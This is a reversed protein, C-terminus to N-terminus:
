ELKERLLKIGENIVKSSTEGDYIEIECDDKFNVAVTSSVTVIKSIKVGVFKLLEMPFPKDIVVIDDGLLKHYDKSERPHTKIVLNPYKDLFQKYISMEEELSFRDDESFPQTILVVSGDDIQSIIDRINFIDLITNKEEDSKQNWLEEPNIVEAKSSIIDPCGEKTLYVKRINEHTGFGERFFKFYFGLFNAFKPHKFRYPMKLDTYNGLGDEIIANDPWQYLPFSFKLHGQGYAEVDRNFTKTFLWAKLKLLRLVHRLNASTHSKLDVFRDKKTSYYFEPKPFFYHNINAAIDDPIGESIIFLDSEEYGFKILYLMLTYVTDVVCIRQKM